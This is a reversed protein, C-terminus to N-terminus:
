CSKPRAKPHADAQDAPEPPQSDLPKAIVQTKGFTANPGESTQLWLEESTANLADELTFQNRRVAVIEYRFLLNDSTWVEVVNGRQEAAKTKLLPEFMGPRAHAFLYTAKGQGPQGIRPPDGPDVLYMAVDCPPYGPPGKIVPMDIDFAQIRVRTAVRNPDPTPSPPAPTASGLPPLTILPSPTAVAAASPSPSPTTAPVAAVPVTYTLLGAALMTVGGATLMAPLLRARIFEIPSMLAFAYRADEPCAGSRGYQYGGGLMHGRRDIRAPRSAPTRTASSTSPPIMAKAGSGPAAGVGTGCGDPEILIGEGVGDAEAADGDADADPGPPGDADGDALAAGDPPDEAPPSNRM